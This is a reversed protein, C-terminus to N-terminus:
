GLFRWFIINIGFQFLSRRWSCKLYWFFEVVIWPIWSGTALALNSVLDKIRYFMFSISYLLPPPFYCMATVVLHSIRSPGWDDKQRNPQHLLVPSASSIRNRQFFNIKLNKDWFGKGASWKLIVLLFSLGFLNM